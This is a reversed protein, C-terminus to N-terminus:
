YLTKPRTELYKKVGPSERVRKCIAALNPYKEDPEFDLTHKALDMNAALHLDAWTMKDGYLYDGGHQSRFSEILDMKKPVDESLLKKKAAETDQVQMGTAMAEMLDTIVDGVSEVLAMSLNDEGALGTMQAAMRCIAISQGFRKGDVELMPLTNWPMEPKLTPWDQFEVRIDEFPVGGAALIFRASEGRGILNFYTYKVKPAAGENGDRDAQMKARFDAYMNNIHTHAQCSETAQISSLASGVRGM